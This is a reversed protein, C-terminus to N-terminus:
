SNAGRNRSSCALAFRRLGVLCRSWSVIKRPAEVSHRARDLQKLDDLCRHTKMVEFCELPEHLRRLSISLCIARTPSDAKESRKM